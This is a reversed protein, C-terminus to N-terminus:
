LQRNIAAPGIKFVTIVYFIVVLSAVLIGIAISRQRQRKKQEESLRLPEQAM